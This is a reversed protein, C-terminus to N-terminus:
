SHFDGNKTNRAPQSPTMNSLVGGLFKIWNVEFKTPTNRYVEQTFTILIIFKSSVTHAHRDMLNSGKICFAFEM